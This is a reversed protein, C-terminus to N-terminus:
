SWNFAEFQHSENLLNKLFSKPSAHLLVGSKPNLISKTKNEKCLTDLFNSTDTRALDFQTLPHKFQSCSQAHNEAQVNRNPVEVPEFGEFIFKRLLNRYSNRKSKQKNKSASFNWNRKSNRKVQEGGYTFLWLNLAKYNRPIDDRQIVQAFLFNERPCLLTSLSRKATWKVAKAEDATHIISM